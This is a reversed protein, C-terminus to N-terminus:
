YSNCNGYALSFTSLKKHRIRKKCTVDKKKKDLLCFSETEKERLFFTLKTTSNSTIFGKLNSCPVRRMRGCSLYFSFYKFFYRKSKLLHRRMKQVQPWALLFNYQTYKSMKKSKIRDLNNLSYVILYFPFTKKEGFFYLLFRYRKQNM